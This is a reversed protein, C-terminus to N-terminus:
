KGGRPRSVTHEIKEQLVALPLVGDELLADHFHRWVEDKSGFRQEWRKKWEQLKHEGVKYCLAQAPICIYRQVEAEIETSSLALHKKMYRVAKDYDWGKWHLGTDVVLRVSRFLEYTLKGFWDLPQNHYDGLSEAYLAWGEVFANGAVAYIRHLPLRRELMYQYQYHHGPEGEHLSLATVTYTPNEGVNRQNLYFTGKRRLDASGPMYFAGASTKEMSIPVRQIDYTRVQRSFYRPIIHRRIEERKKTFAQLAEKRTAFRHDPHQLMARYFAPLPLTPSVDLQKALTRQVQRMARSLRRVESLGFAHIEEPDMSMTLQHKVLYKYMAPGRPVHCWGVTDRCAPLYEEKMFRLVRALEQGHQKLAEKYLPVVRSSRLAPPLSIMYKKEEWFAQLAQIAKECILRPLVQRQRIGKRMSTVADRMFAQFSTHRQIMDHVDKETQLPYLSQNHFTFDILPNEFSTIPYLDFPFRMGEQHDQLVWRLIVDDLSPAHTAKRLAEKYKSLLARWRQQHKKDLVNEYRDDYERFGLFSGFSPHLDIFEQFYQELLSKM